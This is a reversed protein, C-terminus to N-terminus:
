YTISDEIKLVIQKDQIIIQQAVSLTLWGINM